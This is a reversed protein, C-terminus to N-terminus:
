LCGSSSDICSEWNGYRSSFSQGGLKEIYGTMVARASADWKRALDELCSIGPFGRILVEFRTLIEEYLKGWPEKFVNQGLKFITFSSAPYDFPILLLIGFEPMKESSVLLDPFCVNRFLCKLITGEHGDLITNINDETPDLVVRLTTELLKANIEKIEEILEWKIEINKGKNISSETSCAYWQSDNYMSTVSLQRRMEPHPENDYQDVLNTPTCDPIMDEEKVMSSIDTLSCSLSKPSVSKVVEILRQVADKPQQPEQCRPPMTLNQNEVTTLSSIGSPPSPTSSLLFPSRAISGPSFMKNVDFRSSSGSIQHNTPIESSPLSFQHPPYQNVLRSCMPSMQRAMKPTTSEKMEHMPQKRKESNFKQNAVPPQHNPPPYPFSTAAKNSFLSIPSGSRVVNNTKSRSSTQQNTILDTPQPPKSSGARLPNELKQNIGAQFSTNNQLSPTRSQHPVEPRRSPINQNFNGMNAELNIVKSSSQHAPECHQSSGRPKNRMYTSMYNVIVNMYNYVVQDNQPISDVISINLFNMMKELVSKVNGYTIFADLTTATAHLQMANSYMQTLEIFYREKMKQIQRLVYKRYDGSSYFDSPFAFGVPALLNPQATSREQQGGVSILKDATVNVRQLQLRNQNMNQKMQERSTQFNHINKTQTEVMPGTCPLLQNSPMIYHLQNEQYGSTVKSTLSHTQPQQVAKNKYVQPQLPQNQHTQTPQLPHHQSFDTIHSQSNQAVHNTLSILASSLIQGSGHLTDTSSSPTLSSSAMMDQPIGFQALNSSSEELIQAPMQLQCSHSVPIM